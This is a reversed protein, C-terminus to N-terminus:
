IRLMFVEVLVHNKSFYAQIIQYSRDLLSTGSGETDFILGDKGLFLTGSFFGMFPRDKYGPTPKIINEWKHLISLVQLLNVKLPYVIEDVKPRTSTTIFRV